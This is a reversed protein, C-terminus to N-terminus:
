EFRLATNPAIKALRLAPFIGAILTAIIATLAPKVLTEAPIVQTMTWGFSRPNIVDILISAVGIGTPIAIATAAIGIAITQTLVVRILEARSFGLARYIGYEHSRELQQALLAGFIGIFAVIITIVKLLNTVLFTRDFVQLSQELLENSSVLSLGDFRQNSAMLESLERKSLSGGTYIGIGDYNQTPWYKEFVARSMSLSGQESAYDKYVGLVMFERKGSPTNLYLKDNRRYGHHYAFPETIILVDNDEWRNWDFNRQDLFVFSKRAKSNLEFASLRAKTSFGAGDDVITRSRTVTSLAEIGPIEDLLNKTEPTIGISSQALSFNASLYYDARLSTQLWDVVSVRFSAVMVGIGIATASAIMLAACAPGTRTLSLRTSRLGIKEFLLKTTLKLYKRHFLYTLLYLSPVCLCASGLLLCAIAVFGSQVSALGNLILSAAVFFVLAGGVFYILKTNSGRISNSTRHLADIFPSDAATRAPLAAAIITAIVGLVIGSTLAIPDLLIKNASNEFYLDNLTISVARLLGNALLYGILLGCLSGILGLLAAESISVWIIERRTVGLAKLRSIMQQRQLVIFTQTNYILFMGMMLAMLSLATLNTYFARTMNKLQSTEQANDIFNLGEPLMDILPSIEGPMLALDIRTIDKGLGLLEQATAIDVIMTQNAIGGAQDQNPLMEIIDLEHAVGDIDVRLAQGDGLQLKNATARNIVAAGPRYIFEELDIGTTPSTSITRPRSIPDIGIVYISVSEEDVQVSVRFDVAPSMTVFPLQRKLNVFQQYPIRNSLENEIRHSFQGNNLLSAREFSEYASVRVLQIAVVVAVGASIGLLALALQWPFKLLHRSFAIQLARRTRMSM